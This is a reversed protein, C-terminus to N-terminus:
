GNAFHSKGKRIIDNNIRSWQRGRWWMSVSYFIVFYWSWWRCGLGKVLFQRVAGGGGCVCVAELVESYFYFIPCICRISLKKFYFRWIQLSPCLHRNNQFWCWFDWFVWFWVIAWIQRNQSLYKKKYGKGEERRLSVFYSCINNQVNGKFSKRLNILYFPTFKYGLFRQDALGRRVPTIMLEEFFNRLFVSQEASDRYLRSEKQAPFPVIKPIKQKFRLYIINHDVDIM